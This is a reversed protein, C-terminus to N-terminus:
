HVYACRSEPGPWDLGWLVLGGMSWVKPLRPVLAIGHRIM